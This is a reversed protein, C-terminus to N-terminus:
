PGAGVDRRRRGFHVQQQRPKPAQGLSIPQHALAQEPTIQAVAILGPPRWIEGLQSLPM